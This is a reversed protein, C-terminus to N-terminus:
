KRKINNSHFDRKIIKFYIYVSLPMFIMWSVSIAFFGISSIENLSGIEAGGKYAIPAFIGGMLISLFIKNKFRYFAMNYYPVFIIWIAWFYLPSHWSSSKDFSIFGLQLLISDSVVGYLLILFSFIYFDSWLVDKIFLKKDISILAFAILPYTFSFNNMGFSIFFFWLSQLVIMRLLNIM